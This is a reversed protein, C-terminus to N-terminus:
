AMESDQSDPTVDSGEPGDIVYKVSLKDEKATHTKKVPAGDSKAAGAKRGSDDAPENKTSKIFKVDQRSKKAPGGENTKATETEASKVAGSDNSKEDKTAM